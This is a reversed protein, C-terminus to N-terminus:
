SQKTAVFRGGGIFAQDFGHAIDGNKSLIINYIKQGYKDTIASQKTILNIMVEHYQRTFDASIDTHVIDAFGNSKLLELYHAATIMAPSAAADLVRGRTRADTEGIQGTIVWDTFAIKGGPKLVRTVEGLLADKDDVHCWADQGIVLDFSADNFPLATADATEFTAWQSLGRATARRTAEAVNVDVLDIGVVHCEFTQAVYLAPGGLGSGVDLVRTSSAISALEALIRTSEVGGISLYDDTYMKEIIEIGASSYNARIAETNM